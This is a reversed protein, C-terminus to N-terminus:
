TIIFIALALVTMWKMKGSNNASIANWKVMYEGIMDKGVSILVDTDKKDYFKSEGDHEIKYKQKAILIDDDNIKPKNHTIGEKSAMFRYTLSIGEMINKIFPKRDNEFEIFYGYDKNPSTISSVVASVSQNKIQTSIRSQVCFVIEGSKLKCIGQEKTLEICNPPLVSSVSVLNFRECGACRLAKEFSLLKNNDFGVGNTFFYYKPIIPVSM